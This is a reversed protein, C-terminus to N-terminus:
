ESSTDTTTTANPCDSFLPYTGCLDFYTGGECNFVNCFNFSTLAAETFYNVCGGVQLMVGGSILAAAWWKTRKSM